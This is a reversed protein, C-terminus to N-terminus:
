KPYEVYIEIIDYTRINNLIHSANELVMDIILDKIEGEVQWGIDSDSIFENTIYFTQDDEISVFSADPEMEVFVRIFEGFLSHDLSRATSSNPYSHVSYKISEITTVKFTFDYTGSNEYSDTNFFKGKLKKLSKVEFDVIGNLYEDETLGYVNVFDLRSELAWSPNSLKSLIKKIYDNM